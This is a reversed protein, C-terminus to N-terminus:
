FAKQFSIIFHNQQEKEGAGVGESVGSWLGERFLFRKNRLM